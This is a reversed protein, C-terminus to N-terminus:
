AHYLRELEVRLNAPDFLVRFHDFFGEMGLLGAVPLNESFAGITAVPGGPIYLTIEHLYQPAPGSIGQSLRLKGKKIDLGIAAGIDAHFICASAGSDIIADFRKSRPSNKTPLAINVPLSAAYFYGRPADKAPYKKYPLKLTSV